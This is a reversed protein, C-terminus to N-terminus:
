AGQKQAIDAVKPELMEVARVIKDQWTRLLAFAPKNATVLKVDNTQSIALEM